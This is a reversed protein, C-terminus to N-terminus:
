QYAIINKPLEPSQLLTLIGGAQERLLRRLETPVKPGEIVLEASHSEIHFGARQAVEMLNGVGHQDWCNASAFFDAVLITECYRSADSPFRCGVELLRFMTANPEADRECDQPCAPTARKSTRWPTITPVLKARAPVRAIGNGGISM